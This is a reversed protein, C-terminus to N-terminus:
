LFMQVLLIAFALLLCILTKITFPENFIFFTLIAFIPIGVGFGILRGAWYFNFTEIIFRTAKWFCLTAIPSILIIPWLNNKWSDIFFQGHLQLWTLSHGVVLYLFIVLLKNV